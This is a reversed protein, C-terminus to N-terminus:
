SAPVSSGASCGHVSCRDAGESRRAHARCVRRLRVVLLDVMLGLHSTVQAGQRYRVRRARRAHQAPRRRHHVHQRVRLHHRDRRGQASAWCGPLSTRAASASTRLRRSRWWRNRRHEFPFLRGKWGSGSARVDADPRRPLRDGESAPGALSAGGGARVLCRRLDSLTTSSTQTRDAAAARMRRLTAYGACEGGRARGLVGLPVGALARTVNSPSWAGAMELAVTLLTPCARAGALRGADGTRDRSSGTRPKPVCGCPGAGASHASISAWVARVCPCSFVRSISHGSLFRIASSRGSATFWQRGGVWAARASRDLLAIWGGDTLVPLLSAIVSSSLREAIEVVSKRSPPLIVRRASSACSQRHQETRCSLQERMVRSRHVVHRVRDSDFPCHLPELPGIRM